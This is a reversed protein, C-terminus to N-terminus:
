QSLKKTINKIERAFKNFFQTDFIQVCSRYDFLNIDIEHLYFFWFKDTEDYKIKYHGLNNMIKNKLKEDKTICSVKDDYQEIEVGCSTKIFCGIENLIQEPSIEDYHANLLVCDVNSNQLHAYLNQWFRCELVGSALPLASEIEIAQLYLDKNKLLKRAITVNRENPFFLNKLLDM